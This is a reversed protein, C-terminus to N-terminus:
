EGASPPLMRGTLVGPVGSSNYYLHLVNSGIVIVQADLQAIPEGGCRRLDACLMLRSDLGLELLGQAFVHVRPRM